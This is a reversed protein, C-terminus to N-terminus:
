IYKSDLNLSEIKEEKFKQAFINNSQLNAALSNRLIEEEIINNIKKMKM